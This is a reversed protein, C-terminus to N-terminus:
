GDDDDHHAVTLRGGGVGIALTSILNTVDHLRESLTRRHDALVEIQETWASVASPPLQPLDIETLDIGRVERVRRTRWGGCAPDGGALHSEDVFGDSHTRPDQSRTRTSGRHRAEQLAPAPFDAHRRRWNSVTPRRVGAMAAIEAMSVPEREM